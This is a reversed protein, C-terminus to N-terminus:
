TWGRCWGPWSCPWPAAAARWCGPGTTPVGSSTCLGTRTAGSRRGPGDVVLVPVGAAALRHALDQAEPSSKGGGQFHGHAMIVGQESSVDPAFWAAAVRFGERADYAVTRVTYGDGQWPEGWDPEPDPSPGPFRVGAALEARRDPTM